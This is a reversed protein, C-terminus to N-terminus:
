KSLTLSRTAAIPTRAGRRQFTAKGTLKVHKAHRLLAKGQATLKVTVTVTSPLTAASARGTAVLVPKPRAKAKALHAGKPVEYWSITVAGAVPAPFRVAYGKKLLSAIHGAKGTVQLARLLLARIQADTVVTPLSHDTPTTVTTSGPPPQGGPPPPGVIPAGAQVPNSLESFAEGSGTANSATEDVVLSLGVDAAVPTYTTGTAGAITTCPFGGVACRLWQEHIATPSNQWTGQLVTAPAGVVPSGLIVPPDINFPAGVRVVGSAASTAPASSGNVNGATETVRLTHGVDAAVPIYKQDREGAISVCSAGSSDCRQWAYQFSTPSNTWTGRKVGLTDDQTPTAAAVIAPPAINSPASGGGPVSHGVFLNGNSDTTSCVTDGADCAVTNLTGAGALVQVTWNGSGPAGQVVHGADDVAICATATPCAVALLGHGPDVMTVTPALALHPDFSVVQGDSTVDVCLTSTACATANDPAGTGPDVDLPSTQTPATPDFHVQQNDFFDLATCLNVTPCALDFPEDDDIQHATVPTSTTPNFTRETGDEDILSCQGATPCSISDTSGNSDRTVPTPSGPSAPDYTVTKGDASLAACQGVVPCSVSALKTLGLDTSAPAPAAPNFTISNGLFDVADCQTASGCSLESLHRGPEIAAIPPAAVSAPDFTVEQGATDAVVCETTAPCALVNPLEFLENGTDVGVAVPTGPSAPNFTLQRGDADIVTCHTASTCALAIIAHGADIAHPTVASQSTPNFSLVGTSTAGVCQSVAPCVVDVLPTSLTITTVVPGAPLFSTVSGDDNAVVCQIADPCSIALPSAFGQTITVEHTPFPSSPNFTVQESFNDIATCQTTTPCEVGILGGFALIPTPTPQGPSSPNFTVEVGSGDSGQGVATCQSTSPCAIALLVIGPTVVASTAATPPTPSFTMETGFGDVATCQTASPCAVGTVTRADNATDAAFPGSWFTTAAHATAPVVCCVVVASVLLLIRGRRRDTLFLVRAHDEVM